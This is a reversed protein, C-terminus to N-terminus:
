RLPRVPRVRLGGAIGMAPEVGAQDEM